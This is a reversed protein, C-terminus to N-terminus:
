VANHRELKIIASNVSALNHSMSEAGLNVLTSVLVLALPVLIFFGALTFKGQVTAGAVLAVPSGILEVALARKGESSYDALRVFTAVLAVFMRGTGLSGVLFLGFQAIVQFFDM